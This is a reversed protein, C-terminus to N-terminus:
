TCSKHYEFATVSKDVMVVSDDESNSNAGSKKEKTLAVESQIVFPNGDLFYLRRVQQQEEVVCQEVLYRGSVASTGSALVNRDGIGALALFPISATNVITTTTATSQRPMLEQRAALIQVVYTLEEQVAAQSVFTHPARGFTVAILRATGASKAIAVLGCGHSQFMYESERGAPILFVATAYSFTGNNNAPPAAAAAATTEKRDVVTLKYRYNERQPQTDDGELYLFIEDHRDPNWKEFSATHIPPRAVLSNGHLAEM